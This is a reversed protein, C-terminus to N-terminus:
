ETIVRFAGGRRLPTMLDQVEGDVSVAVAAMLLREGITRVVDAPLTGAPVSRTAGDPLVLTLTAPPASAAPRDIM